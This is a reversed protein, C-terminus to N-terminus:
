APAGSLDAFLIGLVTLVILGAMTLNFARFRVPTSLFRQLAAGFLAWGNASTVGALAFVLAVMLPALWDPETLPAQGALSIAMVWAKPNVWQFAAGALLSWPKESRPRDTSAHSTAIKWALWLLVAAGVYRLIERVIPFQEFVQSLGIGILFMMLGFGSVVGIVHPLTRVYGFRAGSSALLANNPGPTWSLGLALVFLGLLYEFSM